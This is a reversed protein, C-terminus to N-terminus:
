VTETVEEEASELDPILQLYIEHSDEPWSDNFVKVLDNLLKIREVLFSAWIDPSIIPQVRGSQFEYFTELEKKLLSSPNPWNQNPTSKLIITPSEDPKVSSDISDLPLLQSKRILGFKTLIKSILLSLM